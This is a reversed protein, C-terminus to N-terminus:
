RSFKWQNSDMPILYDSVQIKLTNCKFFVFKPKLLKYLSSRDHQVFLELVRKLKPTFPTDSLDMPLTKFFDIKRVSICRVVKPSVADYSYLLSELALKKKTKTETKRKQKKWKFSLMAIKKELFVKIFYQFSLSSKSLFRYQVGNQIIKIVGAFIDAM